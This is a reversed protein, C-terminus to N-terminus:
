NAQAIFVDSDLLGLFHQGTVNTTQVAEWLIQKFIKLRLTTMGEWINEHHDICRFYKTTLITTSKHRSTLTSWCWGINSVFVTPESGRCAEILASWVIREESHRELAFTKFPLEM